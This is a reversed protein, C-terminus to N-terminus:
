PEVVSEPLRYGWIQDTELQPQGGFSQWRVERRLVVGDPSVVCHVFVPPSTEASQFVVHARGSEDGVLQPRYFRLVRGFDVVGRCEATAPDIVRMLLREGGDRVLSVLEYYRSRGDPCVAELHGEETGTRIEFFFPGWQLTGEPRLLLVRLVYSGPRRLDYCRLLNFRWVRNSAPPILGSVAVCGENRPVLSGTEDRVDLVVEAEEEPGLRYSLGSRNVVEVRVMVPEYRLFIDHDLKCRVDLPGAAPVAGATLATAALVIFSWSKQRGRGSISRM